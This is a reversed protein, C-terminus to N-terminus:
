LLFRDENLHFFTPNKTNQIRTNVRIVALHLVGGRVGGLSSAGDVVSYAMVSMPM